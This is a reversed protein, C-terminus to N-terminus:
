EPLPPQDEPIERRDDCMIGPERKSPKAIYANFLSTCIKYDKASM